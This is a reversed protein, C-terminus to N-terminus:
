AIGRSVFLEGATTAGDRPPTSIRTGDCAVAWSVAAAKRNGPRRRPRFGSPGGHVGLTRFHHGAIAHPDGAGGRREVGGLEAPDRGEDVLAAAAHHARAHLAFVMGTFLGTLAVILVSGVGVFDFQAFLNELRFPPRVMWRAVSAGLAVVGVFTEVAALVREGIWEVVASLAAM